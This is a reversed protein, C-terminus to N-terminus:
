PKHPQAPSYAGLNKRKLHQKYSFRKGVLGTKSKAANHFYLFGMAFPELSWATQLLQFKAKAFYPDGNDV